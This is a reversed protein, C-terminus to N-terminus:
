DRTLLFSTGRHELVVGIPTIQEVTPGEPLRSNERQKSMNIFVFRNAPIDSYVHIDLHLDPLTVAGNARVEQFTPLVASRDPSPTVVATAEVADADADVIPLNQPNETIPAADAENAAMAEKAAVVREAFDQGGATQTPAGIDAPTDAEVPPRGTDYAPAPSPDTPAAAPRLLLGVLVVLNVALLVGLLWLWRPARSNAKSIPVSAFEASGQQQRETESKKLADLIFSM